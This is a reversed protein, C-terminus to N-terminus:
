DWPKSFHSMRHTRSFQAMLSDDLLPLSAPTEGAFERFDRILHSQDYYGCAAAITSWEQAGCKSAANFVRQFRQIRCYSKPGIGVQARFNREFQRTSTGAATALAAVSVAGHRHLALRAAAEVGPDAALTTHQLFVQELVAFRDEVSRLDCLRAALARHLKASVEELPLITGTLEAVPLGLLPRAGWPHFRMGILFAERAPEVLVPEKMQGVLFFRPQAEWRQNRWRRFPQAFNLVLEICGDPLIRETVPAGAPRTGSLIWFCEVYRRLAPSPAVQRYDM